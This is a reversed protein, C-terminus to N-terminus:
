YCDFVRMEAPNVGRSQELSGETGESARALFGNGDRVVTGAYALSNRDM